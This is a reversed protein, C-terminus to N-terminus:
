VKSKIAAKSQEGFCDCDSAGCLFNVVSNVLMM